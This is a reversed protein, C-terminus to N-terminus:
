RRPQRRDPAASRKRPAAEAADIAVAAIGGIARNVLRITAYTRAVVTEHVSRALRAPTALAPVRELVDFVWRGAQTHVEEIARSGHDIADEVLDKLGRWRKV